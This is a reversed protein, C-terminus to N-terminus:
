PHLMTSLRVPIQAGPFLTEWTDGKARSEGKTQSPFTCGQPICPPVPLSMCGQTVRLGLLLRPLAM